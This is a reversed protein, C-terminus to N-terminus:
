VADLRHWSMPLPLWANLEGLDGFYASPPFPGFLLLQAKSASLVPCDRDDSTKECGATSESVFFRLTGHNEITLYFEGVPMKRISFSLKILADCLKEFNMVKFLSPTTITMDQACASLAKFREPM